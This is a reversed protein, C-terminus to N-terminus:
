WQTTLIETLAVTYASLCLNARMSFHIPMLESQWLESNISLWCFAIELTADTKPFSGIVLKASNFNRILLLLVSESKLTQM